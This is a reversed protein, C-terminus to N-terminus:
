YNDLYEGFMLAVGSVLAEAKVSHLLRQEAAMGGSGRM